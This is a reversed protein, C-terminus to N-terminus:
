SLKVTLFVLLIEFLMFPNRIPETLCTVEGLRDFAGIVGGYLTSFIAYWIQTDM